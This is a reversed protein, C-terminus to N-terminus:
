IESVLLDLAIEPDIKGTKIEWDVQFIKQYIKKLEQLTFNRAQQYSKEVVFPHLGSNKLIVAYPKNNEILSKISLLNRFQYNIMSFIKSPEEGEDLQKHILKLAEKKQRAAVADITKFIDTEIQPKILKKIDELSIELNKTGKKYISVKKIENSLQWVNNGIYFIFVDLVQGSIRMGNKKFEETIWNKLKLGVLLPFEQIKAKNKLFKLLAEESKIEKDEYFVIVDETNEINEAEKLFKEKFDNNSFANKLVLLKKEKFMSVSQLEGKIKEFEQDKLDFFKLSLGVKNTKKYQEIIENLKQQARLSDSGYLLIIM